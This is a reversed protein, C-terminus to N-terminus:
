AWSALALLPMQIDYFNMWLKYTYIFSAVMLTSFMRKSVTGARRPWLKKPWRQDTHPLERLTILTWTGHRPSIQLLAQHIFRPYNAPPMSVTKCCDRRVKAPAAQHCITQTQCRLSLHEVARWIPVPRLKKLDLPKTSRMGSRQSMSVCPCLFRM